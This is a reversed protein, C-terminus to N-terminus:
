GHLVMWTGLALLLVAVVKRFTRDAVSRLMRSGAVTGIVVGVVAIGIVARSHILDSRESLIYVPLRAGDVVLGVATATAVFAEKETDFALLAATRIGGQNGVLGGFVGSLAGAIWAGRRGLHVHNVFGTLESLGVFLLLCGFVIALARNSAYANLLAGLLGGVASTIGFWVFIHRDVHGRLLWFRVATGAVHPISVAAVALKTGLRAALLPTLVSGIGFGTLSAITGAVFAALAVAIEFLM